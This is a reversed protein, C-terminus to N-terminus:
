QLGEIGAGASYTKSIIYMGSDWGGGVGAFDELTGMGGVELELRSTVDTVSKLITKGARRLHYCREM